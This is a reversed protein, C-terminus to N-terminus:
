EIVESHTLRDTRGAARFDFLLEWRGPMHFLLGDARFRGAAERTVGAKYNMGHRHELMWADVTVNEPLTAGPNACVALAVAFHQGLQIKDPVTRYVVSYRASDLRRGGGPLEPVCGLALEAAAMMVVALGLGAQSNM